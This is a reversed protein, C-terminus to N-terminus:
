GKIIKVYESTKRTRSKGIAWSSSGNIAEDRALDTPDDFHLLAITHEDDILKKAM